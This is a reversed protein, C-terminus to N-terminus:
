NLPRLAAARQKQSRFTGIAYTFGLLLRRKPASSTLGVDMGLDLVLNPNVNILTGVYQSAFLSNDAQRGGYAETLWAVRSTFPGTAALASVGGGTLGSPSGYFTEILNYDFHSKRIDRSVLASLQHDVFGSGGVKLSANPLKIAYLMGLSPWLKSQDNFRYRAAFWNDGIGRTSGDDFDISALEDFSWQLDMKRTLGYRLTANLSNGYTDSTIVQRTWGQDMKLHGCATTSTGSSVAPRGADLPPQGEDCGSHQGFAYPFFLLWVGLGIVPRTYIYIAKM